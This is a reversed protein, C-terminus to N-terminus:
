KEKGVFDKLLVCLIKVGNCIEFDFEFDFEFISEFISVFISVFISMTWVISEFVSM